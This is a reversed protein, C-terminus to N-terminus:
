RPSWGPGPPWSRRCRARDRSRRRCRGLALGRGPREVVHSQDAAGREGLDRDVGHEDARAGVPPDLVETRGGVHQAAPRDVGPMRARTTGPDCRTLAWASASPRSRTNVPAPKSHRSGPQEIHRAMFGSLSAGPSRAADVELRLKSPRWPRPPRVWRTDGATAAAVATAPRNAVGPSSSSISATCSTVPRATGSSRDSTSVSWIMGDSQSLRTSRVPNPAPSNLSHRSSRSKTRLRSSCAPAVM